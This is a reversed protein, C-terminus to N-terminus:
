WRRIQRSVRNEQHNLRAQEPRTICGDHCNEFRNEERGIFHDERHLRDAEHIGMDGNFEKNDIRATQNDIRQNVEAERPHTQAFSANSLGIFAIIAIATYFKKKM